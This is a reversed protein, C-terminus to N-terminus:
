WPSQKTVPIMALLLIAPFLTATHLELSEESSFTTTKRRMRKEKTCKHQLGCAVESSSSLYQYDIHMEPLTVTSNKLNNSPVFLKVFSYFNPSSNTGSELKSDCFFRSQSACRSITQDLRRYSAKSQTLNDLARGTWTKFIQVSLLRIVISIISKKCTSPIECGPM